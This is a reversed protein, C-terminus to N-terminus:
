TELRFKYFDILPRGLVLQVSLTLIGPIGVSLLDNDRM